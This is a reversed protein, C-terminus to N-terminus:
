SALMAENSDYTDMTVEVDHEAAFKDLLEQPIYEFWHYISLKGGAEAASVSMMLAIAASGLGLKSNM